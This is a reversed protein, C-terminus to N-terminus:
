TPYAHSRKLSALVIRTAGGAFMVDSRWQHAEEQSAPREPFHLAPEYAFPIYVVYQSGRQSLDPIIARKTACYLHYLPIAAVMDPTSTAPNFPDDTAYNVLLASTEAKIQALTDPNVWSGKIALVIDPHFSHVASLMARNFSWYTPPRGGSLRSFVKQLPSRELGRFYDAEDVFRYEYGLKELAGRFFAGVHYFDGNGVLLVRRM